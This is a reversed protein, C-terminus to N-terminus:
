GTTSGVLTGPPSGSANPLSQSPAGGLARAGVSRAWAFFPPLLGEPYGALFVTGVGIYLGEVSSPLFGLAMGGILASSCLSVGGIAVAALVLLSNFMEFDTSGAVSEAGGLLAGALGAIAASLIFVALKTMTLSLGLTACAAESDKIASLVRGFPGRRIALLGISLLAFVVALCIDFGKDGNIHYGFIDPRPIPVSGDFGFVASWPFLMNDMASAFALTALALYLGRLRLAPLAIIGGVVGALAAAGVYGLLSGNHGWKSMAYAGIGAFTLQCISIQGGWGALPVLSLCVLGFALGIGLKAVNGVSLFNIAVIVAAVLLVGGRVSRFLSATPLGVGREPSATRLRSVPIVLLVIFLVVSPVSLKLGQVPTSAWFGTLPLYGTAYSTLLGLGIAGAFTLPLSRLRGILAAAYADIVLLTLILPQLQLAPALLIGAVSALSAGISWSLTSYWAPRGGFLGILDRNDVVGRMAIGVRTRFLFLRLGVAIAIAAGITIVEEWPVYVGLFHVGNNGFFQPVVRAEPPWIENVAGLLILTLGVTIVLTVPVNSAPVRRIILREILAGLLPAIIFVTIVFALGPNLHWPVSLQWYVFAMFMGIAGHAINFIGSTSYTVVLGCAAVAYAAGSVIGIITFELFEHM